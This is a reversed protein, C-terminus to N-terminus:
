DNGLVPGVLHMAQWNCQLRHSVTRLVALGQSIPAGQLHSICTSIHMFQDTVAGDAVNSLDRVGFGRSRALCWVCAQLDRQYM